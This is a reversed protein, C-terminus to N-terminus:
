LFKMFPFYAGLLLFFTFSAICVFLFQALSLCPVALCCLSSPSPPFSLSLLQLLLIKSVWWYPWLFNDWQLHCLSNQGVSLSRLWM